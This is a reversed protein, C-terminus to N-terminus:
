GARVVRALVDGKRAVAVLRVSIEGPRRRALAGTDHDDLFPPPQGVVYDIHAVSERGLAEDSEGGIEEAALRGMVRTFGVRQHAGERDLLRGAVQGASDVEQEAM